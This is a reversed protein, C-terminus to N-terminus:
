SMDRAGLGFEQMKGFLGTFSTGKLDKKRNFNGAGLASM